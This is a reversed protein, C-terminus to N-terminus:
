FLLTTCSIHFNYLYMYIFKAKRNSDRGFAIGTYFQFVTDTKVVSQLKEPCRRTSSM